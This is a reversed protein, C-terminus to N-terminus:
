YIESNAAWYLSVNKDGVETKVIPIDPPSSSEIDTIMHAKM